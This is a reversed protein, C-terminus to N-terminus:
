LVYSPFVSTIFSHQSFHVPTVIPTIDGPLDFNIYMHDPLSGFRHTPETILQRFGYCRMFKTLISESGSKLLLDINFDGTVITPVNLQPICNMVSDMQQLYLHIDFNPARHTNVICFRTNTIRNQVLVAIAEITVDQLKIEEAHL